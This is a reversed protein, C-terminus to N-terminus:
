GGGGGGGGDRTHGLTLIGTIKKQKTQKHKVTSLMNEPLNSCPFFFVTM